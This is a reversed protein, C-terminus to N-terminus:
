PMTRNKAALKIAQNTSMDMNIWMLQGITILLFLRQGDSNKM